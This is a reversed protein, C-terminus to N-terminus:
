VTIYENVLILHVFFTSAQCINLQETLFYMCIVGTGSIYDMQAEQQSWNEYIMFVLNVLYENYFIM